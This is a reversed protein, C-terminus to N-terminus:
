KAEFIRTSYTAHETKKVKRNVMGLLVWFFPAVTIVSINFFAQVLYALLAAIIGAELFSQQAYKINQLIPISKIFTTSLLILYVVLAPVGMTVALQLYENHAKDVIIDENGSFYIRKEEPRDPFVDAFTDPGSGLWIHEPVLPLANKWIYLRSSGAHQNGEIVQKGEDVLGATRKVLSGDETLGIGIFLVLFSFSLALWKKWLQKHKFVYYTLFLFGVFTGVWASRTSSYLMSAFLISLLLFYYVNQSRKTTSLYFGMGIMLMITVYSGYFNPNGFFGYSRDWGEAHTTRPLFDLQFHQLIAYIAVLGSVFTLYTLLRRDEKETFFLYVFLFLTIYGVWAILGELRGSAGIYSTSPDVSFLTSLAILFLFSGALIIPTNWRPTLKKQLLQWLIYLWVVVTMWKLYFFKTTTFSYDLFTPYILVPFLTLFLLIVNKMPESM